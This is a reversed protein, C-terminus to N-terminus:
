RTPVRTAPRVFLNRDEVISPSTDPWKASTAKSHEDCGGGEPHQSSRKFEGPYSPRFHHPREEGETM